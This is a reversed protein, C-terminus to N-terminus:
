CMKPLVSRHLELHEAHIWPQKHDAQRRREGRDGRSKGERLWVLAQSDGLRGHAETGKSTQALHRPLWKEKAQRPLKWMGSICPLLGGELLSVQHWWAVSPVGVAPVTHVGSNLCVGGRM